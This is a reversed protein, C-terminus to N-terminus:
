RPATAPAAHPVPPEAPAAPAGTAPMITVTLTLDPKWWRVMHRRLLEPTAAAITAPATGLEDIPVQLFWAMALSQSWYDATDVRRSVESAADDAERRLQAQTPGLEILRAIRARAVGAAARLRAEDGSMAFSGIVTGLEPYTRGTMAVGSTTPVTLGSERLAEAVQREMLRAAVSSLRSEALEVVGPAPLSVTLTPRAGIAVADAEQQALPLRKLSRQEMLRDRRRTPLAGFTSVAIPGAAVADVEGVVAVDLARTAIHRRLGATAADFEVVKLQAVSPHLLRPDDAAMLRLMADAARRDARAESARTLTISRERAEEFAKPDFGPDALTAAIQKFTGELEAAACTGTILVGEPKQSVRVRAPGAAPKMADIALMASGRTAATEELEVAPVLVAITVRGANGKTMPRLHVDVGNGLSLSTVGAQRWVAVRHVQAVGAEAAPQSAVAVPSLLLALVVAACLLM